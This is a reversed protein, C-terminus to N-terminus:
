TPTPFSVFEVRYEPSQEDFARKYASLIEKPFSSAVLVLEAAEGGVPLWAFIIACFLCTLSRM